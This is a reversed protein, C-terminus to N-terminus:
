SLVEISMGVYGDVGPLQSVYTVKAVIVRGTHGSEERYEKLRLTDGEWFDRDNKRVEFTKLGDKVDMFYVPWIKLEHVTM